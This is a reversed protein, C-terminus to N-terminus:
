VNSVALRATGLYAARLESSSLQPFARALNTSKPTLLQLVSKVFLTVRYLGVSLVEANKNYFLLQGRYYDIFTKVPMKRSSASEIHIVRVNPIHFVKWGARRARFCWDMEEAYLFYDEDLVGVHQLATTRVLFFAGKVWDVEPIAGDDQVSRDGRRTIGWEKALSPFSDWSHQLTGDENLLQCGVVAAQSNGAMFAVCDDIASPSLITDPNLLLVYDSRIIRIAQNNAAAFGLNEKNEILKVCPFRQHLMEASHDTSANDVVIIEFECRPPQSFISHLCQALLDRTNWNIIIISLDKM